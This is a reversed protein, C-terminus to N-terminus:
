NLQSNFACKIRFQIFTTHNFVIVLGLIVFSDKAFNNKIMNRDPRGM